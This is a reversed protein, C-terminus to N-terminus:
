AGILERFKQVRKAVVTSFGATAPGIALLGDLTKFLLDV